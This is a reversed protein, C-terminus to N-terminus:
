HWEAISRQPNNSWSHFAKGKFMGDFGEFSPQLCIKKLLMKSSHRFSHQSHQTLTSHRTFKM